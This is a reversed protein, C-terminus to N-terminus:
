LAGPGPSVGAPPAFFSLGDSIKALEKGTAANFEYLYALGPSYTGLDTVWVDTFKPGFNLYQPIHFGSFALKCSQV